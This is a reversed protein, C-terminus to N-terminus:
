INMENIVDVLSNIDGLKTLLIQIKLKSNYLGYLIENIINKDRKDYIMAQSADVDIYINNILKQLNNLLDIDTNQNTNNRLYELIEIFNNVDPTNQYTLMFDNLKVIEDLLINKEIFMDM